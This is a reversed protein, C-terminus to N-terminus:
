NPHLILLLTKSHYAMKKTVSGKFIRDLLSHKKAILTLLDVSNEEIYENIGHDINKDPKFHFSLKLGKFYRHLKQAEKTEAAEIKPSQSIHLVHIEAGSVRAIEILAEYTKKSATDRYDNALAINKFSKGSEAKEPIALVPCKVNKAVTYTNSGLLIGKFGSAGTTGMVILDISDMLTMSIIADQPFAHKVQFTYDINKLPKMSAAMHEFARKSNDEAERIMNRSYATVSADAYSVPKQCANLIILKANVKEALEIALELAKVSCGSFDIPVLIKKPTM